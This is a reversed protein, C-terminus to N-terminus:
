SIPWVLSWLASMVVHLAKQLALVVFQTTEFIYAWIWVPGFSRTGPTNLVGQFGSQLAPPKVHAAFNVMSDPVLRGMRVVSMGASYESDLSLKAVPILPPEFAMTM